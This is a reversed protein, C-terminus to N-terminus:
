TNECRNLSSEPAFIPEKSSPLYINLARNYDMDMWMAFFATQWSTAVSFLLALVSLDPAYGLQGWLFAVRVSLVLSACFFLFSMLYFLVLPHFDRVIYKQVMRWLFLRVLMRSIRWATSPIRMKSEEGVGYVPRIPVDGVRFEHVNLRVLLDNPQGYGRYMQAWDVVCLASRNIATYGSQSDAIRWYGSAMKTLFSLMANGILRVKPITRMADAHVLRNGKAYDVQGRAVPAVLAPLDEPAMQGDGAMVVAIDVRQNRAWEYGCAIAGGVGRNEGHRILLVRPDQKAYREVVAITADTSCDDVIVIHNVFDPMTEIVRGINREENYSPVVVAIKSRGLLDLTENLGSM